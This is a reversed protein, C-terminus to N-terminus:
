PPFRCPLTHKRHYRSIFLCSAALRLSRSTTNTSRSAMKGTSSLPLAWSKKRRTSSPFRCSTRSSLARSTWLRKRFSMSLPSFLSILKLAGTYLCLFVIICFMCAHLIQNLFFGCQNQYDALRIIPRSMTDTYVYM